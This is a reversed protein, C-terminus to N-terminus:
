SYVMGSNKINENLDRLQAVTEETNDAINAM